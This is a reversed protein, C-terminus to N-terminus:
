LDSTPASSESCKQNHKRALRRELQQWRQVWHRRQNSNLPAYSLKQQAEALPLLINTLDPRHQATRHCFASFSEGSRPVFGQKRLLKLSLQLPDPQRQNLGLRAVGLGLAIGTAAIAVVM